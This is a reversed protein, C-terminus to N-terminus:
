AHVAAHFPCVEDDNASNTFFDAESAVQSPVEPAVDSAPSYWPVEDSPRRARIFVGVGRKPRNLFAFNMRTSDLRGREADLDLRGFMRHLVLAAEVGFFETGPCRHRGAAFTLYEYRNPEIDKWRDPKFMLPDPYREADSHVSRGQAMIFTGKRVRYGEIAVDKKACALQGWIPPKLRIAESNCARAYEETRAERAEAVLKDRAEPSHLLFETAWSYADASTHHGAILLTCIMDRLRKDTWFAPDSESLAVMRSAVSDNPKKRLEAIKGYVLSDAEKQLRRAAPYLRPAKDKRKLPPQLTNGIYFSTAVPRNTRFSYAMVRAICDRWQDIERQDADDLGFTFRVIMEQTFAEYLPQLKTRTHLPLEDIMRDLVRVSMERHAEVRARSLEPILVRRAKAHEDGNIIFPSNGGMLFRFGFAKIAEEDMAEPGMTYMERVGRATTVNVWEGNWGPLIKAQWRAFPPIWKYQFFPFILRVVPAEYYQQEDIHDDRFGFMVGLTELTLKFAFRNIPAVPLQRVESDSLLKM